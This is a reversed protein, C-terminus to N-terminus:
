SAIDINTQNISQNWFQRVLTTLIIITCRCPSMEGTRHAEASTRLYNRNHSTTLLKRKWYKEIKKKQWLNPEEEGLRRVYIMRKMLTM